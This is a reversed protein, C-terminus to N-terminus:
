KPDRPNVPLVHTVGNVTSTMPQAGAEVHHGMSGDSLGRVRPTEMHHGMSGDSESLPVPPITVKTM